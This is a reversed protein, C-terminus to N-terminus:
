HLDAQYVSALCEERGGSYSTGANQITPDPESGGKYFCSRHRGIEGPMSLQM